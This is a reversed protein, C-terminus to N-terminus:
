SSGVVTVPLWTGTNDARCVEVEWTGAPVSPNMGFVRVTWGDRLTFRETEDDGTAVQGAGLAPARWGCFDERPALLVVGLSNNAPPQGPETLVTMMSGAPPGGSRTAPVPVTAWQSTMPDIRGITLRGVPCGATELRLRISMDGGMFVTGTDAWPVADPLCPTPETTSTNVTNTASPRAAPAADPVRAVSGQLVGLSAAVAGVVVVASLAVVARRTGRRRVLVSGRDIIAQDDVALHPAPPDALMGLLPDRM